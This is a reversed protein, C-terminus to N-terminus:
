EIKDVKKKTQETLDIEEKKIIHSSRSLHKNRLTM